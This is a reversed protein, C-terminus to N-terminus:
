GFLEFETYIFLSVLKVWSVALVLIDIEDTGHIALVIELLNLVFLSMYGILVVESVVLDSRGAVFFGLM